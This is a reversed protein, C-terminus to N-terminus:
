RSTLHRVILDRIAEPAKDQLLHSYGPLVEFRYQGNVYRGTAEAPARGLAM